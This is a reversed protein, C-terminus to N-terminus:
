FEADTEGPHGVIFATRFVLGPVATRLREVVERQRKGGHGRRMRRLMGDAAHQLPMDVYPVVRPHNALLDILADDLKEPYLYFIRVWRIGPVDAVRRVVDRLSVGDDLDRGYAVTDQSVLNLELVGSDALRRAEEM